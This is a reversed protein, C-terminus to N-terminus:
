GFVQSQNGVPMKSICGHIKCQRCWFYFRFQLFVFCVYHGPKVANRGITFYGQESPASAIEAGRGDGMADIGCAEVDPFIHVPKQRGVRAKNRIRPVNCLQAIIFGGFQGIEPCPNKMGARNARQFGPFNRQPNEVDFIM